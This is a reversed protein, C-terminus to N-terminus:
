KFYITGRLDISAGITMDLQNYDILVCTFLHEYM